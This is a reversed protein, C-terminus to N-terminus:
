GRCLLCYLRDSEPDRKIVPKMQIEFPRLSFSILDMRRLVWLCCLTRVPDLEAAAAVANLTMEGRSSSRYVRRMEEKSICFRETEATSNRGSFSYVKKGSTRLMAAQGPFLEGEFLLVEWYAPSLHEMDCAYIVANYARADLARFNMREFDPFLAQAKAAGKSTRCLVAAGQPLNKFAEPLVCDSKEPFYTKGADAYKELDALMAEAERVPDSPCSSASNMIERIQLEPATHGNFTNQCPVALLDVTDTLEEAREGLSFGIGTRETGEQMFTGRLHKRDAGVRSLQRVRVERILFLPEPNAMGFPELRDLLAINELTIESLRIQTDYEKVPMVARGGVQRSVADSLARRFAEANQVPLTMGAAQKHGGFRTLVSACEMLAAHIDVGAASRASGTLTEGQRSLIVTPYGTEEALRGAALGCVGIDWSEDWLVIARLSVLDLEKMKERASALIRAEEEKRRDNLAQTKVALAAATNEDEAMLLQLALEASEMRGCANLRPSLSFGVDRATIKERLECVHILARLGPRCTNTIAKLGLAALTRNEGLLPVMDAVTALACLDLLRLARDGLMARSVQFAVGAGCLYPCPYEGLTPCVIADAPPLEEHCRHHDTVIVQLGLERAYRVEEVATIGNDVTILLGARSSIQEVANRNLGYGDGHRDPLMVEAPISLARLTHLMIASACVGDCDYDGYIVTRTRKERASLLLEATRQMGPLTLPDCLSQKEPQLFARAEEEGTIGRAALLEAFFPPYGPLVAEGGRKELRIM